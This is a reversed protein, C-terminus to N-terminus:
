RWSLEEVAQQMDDQGPQTYLLTQQINPTGNNKMHGALRAVIDLPVKRSVLEHCFSHRLSHANFHEIGTLKRYKEIVLQLSRTTIHGGAKNPFLYELDPNEQFYRKLVERTDLNLPVERWRACKGNRVTLKGSREGVQIDDLRLDAVEQVRLGTHLMFTILTLERLNGYKRVARIIQNQENRTLWRPTQKVLTVTDVSAVPNDPVQGTEHMWRYFAKLQTLIQKLTSPQYHQIAWRKFNAVDLETVGRLTEISYKTTDNSIVADQVQCPSGENSGRQSNSPNSIPSFQTNVETAKRGKSEGGKPTPHPHGTLWGSFVKLSNRHQKIARETKGSRKLYDLFTNM